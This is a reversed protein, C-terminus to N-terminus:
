KSDMPSKIAGSNLLNSFMSGYLFNYVFTGASNNRIVLFQFGGLHGVVVLHIFLHSVNM